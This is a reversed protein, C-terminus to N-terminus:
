SPSRKATRALVNPWKWDTKRGALPMPADVQLDYILPHSQRGIEVLDRFGETTIMGVTAGRRQLLATTAVTTGHAFRDIGESPIGSKALLEQLGHLIARSPDDPTSPRKHIHTEGSQTNRASYDTFTGGVDVGIIWDNM